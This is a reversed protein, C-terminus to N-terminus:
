LILGRKGPGGDTVALELILIGANPIATRLFSTPAIHSGPTAGTIPRERERVLQLSPAWEHRAAFPRAYDAGLRFLIPPLLGKEVRPAGARAAGMRFLKGVRGLLAATVDIAGESQTPWLPKTPSQRRM